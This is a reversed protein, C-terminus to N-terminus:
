ARLVPAQGSSRHTYLGAETAAGHALGSAEEAGSIKLSRTYRGTRQHRDAETTTHAPFVGGCAM